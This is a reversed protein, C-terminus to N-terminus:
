SAKTIQWASRSASAPAIAKFLAEADAQELALRLVQLEQEFMALSGLVETRNALLIDRWMHPESAAIRSFDRFGTGALRLALDPDHDKLIGNVFAFALLHPLHSVKAFAADHDPAAMSVVKCGLTLWMAEVKNTLAASTAGDPTMIVQCGRYLGANAHDVGSKEAGAIPHCPVFQALKEGMALSAAAVVDAKTSGVDIVVAHTPLPDRLAALTSQTAAVPIAIVVLDSGTAAEAVNLVQRDIVGRALAKASSSPSQSFGVVTKVLGAERLAMALSGGMLGCGILGLQQFM